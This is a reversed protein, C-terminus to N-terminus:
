ANPVWTGKDPDFHLACALPQTACIAPYPRVGGIAGGPGGPQYPTPTQDAAATGASIIVMVVVATLAALIARNVQTMGRDARM